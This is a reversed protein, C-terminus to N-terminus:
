RKTMLQQQQQLSPSSSSSTKQEWYEEKNTIVFVKDDDVARIRYVTNNQSSGRRSIELMTKGANLYRNVIARMLKKSSVRWEREYDPDEATRIMFYMVDAPGKGFDHTARRRKAKDTSFQWIVTEGDQLRVYDKLFEEESDNVTQPEQAVNSTKEQEYEIEDPNEM